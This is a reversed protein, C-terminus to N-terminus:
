GAELIKDLPMRKTNKLEATVAEMAKNFWETQDASAMEDRILQDRYTLESKEVYYMLHYGYETEVIEVDGAKRNADAAWKEFNEVYGTGLYVDEFLGGDEASTDESYEKVLNIFADETKEGSNWMDLYGQAKSLAAAKEEESYITEGNEDPEGGEFKVLLHRVDGAYGTNDHKGKFLAIYYGNTYEVEKGDEEKTTTIAIADIDGAKRDAATVWETLKANSSSLKTRLVNNNHSVNLTIGDKVTIEELLKELEETSTATVLKDAAAKLAARALEDDKAHDHEEEPETAEPETAEPETAEPETAEPETAEPETAEPETAEPETTTPETTEPETTTPETTEPEATEPETTTPETTEPEEKADELHQFYTYSLYVSDYSYSSFDDYKDAEYERLAEDSYSLEELYYAYYGDSIAQRELYERYNKMTYGPGFYNKLFQKANAFGYLTANTELNEMMTDLEEVQEEPLEWEAEKALDCLVFDRKAEELAVELFYDAWTTGKEEDYTQENLPKAPDLNLGEVMADAGYEQSYWNSYFENVADNYYYSLEITNLKHDGIVAATTWREMLGNNKVTNYCLTFLGFGLILVMALVFVTTTTKLKKAESKQQHQKATLAEVAQEKRLKKKDSASM